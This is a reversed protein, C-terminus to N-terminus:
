KKRIKKKIVQSIIKYLYKKREVAATGNGGGVGFSGQWGEGHPGNEWHWTEVSEVGFHVHREPWIPEGGLQRGSHRIFLSQALLRAHKFWFHLSGHGPEQPAFASQRTTVCM